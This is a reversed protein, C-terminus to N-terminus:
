TYAEVGWDTQDHGSTGTASDRDNVGTSSSEPEVKGFQAEDAENM